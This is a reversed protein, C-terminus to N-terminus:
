EFLLKDISYHPMFLRFASKLNRRRIGLDDLTMDNVLISIIVVFFFLGFIRVRHSAPLINLQLIIIPLITAQIIEQLVLWKELLTYYKTM